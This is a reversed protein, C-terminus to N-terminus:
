GVQQRLRKLADVNPKDPGTKNIGPVELYFPLSRVAPHSMFNLFGAEGIDGYGINEHRDVGSGLPRKSDNAHIAQLKDLGIEREFEDFMANLTDAQSIDYGAAWVHQTDLCVALQPHNVERLIAGLEAFKSGIHDGSGASTELMLYPGAPAADLIRKCADAFQRLIAEFGRGRHSAPHFIVGIAGIAAASQMDSILVGVSKEVMELDSSGLALLYKSHIAPQGLNAAANLERFKAADTDPVPKVAWTRPSSAFIQVAEAGIAVGNEVAKYVGGSASTHAGILM